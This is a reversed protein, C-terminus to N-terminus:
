PSDSAATNLHPEPPQRVMTVPQMEARVEDGVILNQFQWTIMEADIIQYVATSTVTEGEATVGSSTLIWGDDSKTWIGTFFGGESDFTWSRLKQHVPDWGTRQVGTLEMGNHMKVSFKRLLFNGDESWDCDSRVVSDSDENVWQGVMWALQALQEQRGLEERPFDKLVDIRWVGDDGKKHIAAYKATARPAFPDAASTVVGEELAVTDSLQRVNTIDISEIVAEPYAVLTETFHAVIAQRGVTRVGFEDLFEADETFLNGIAESDRAAYGNIFAQANEWFPREADPVQFSATDDAPAADDQAVVVGVFLLCVIGVRQLLVLWRFTRHAM